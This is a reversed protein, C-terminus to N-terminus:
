LLSNDAWIGFPIILLFLSLKKMTNNKTIVILKSALLIKEILEQENTSFKNGVVNIKALKKKAKKKNVM